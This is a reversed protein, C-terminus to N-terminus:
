FRICQYQILGYEVKLLVLGLNFSQTFIAEKPMARYTKGKLVTYIWSLQYPNASNKNM